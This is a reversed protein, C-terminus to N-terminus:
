QLTIVASSHARLVQQLMSRIGVTIRKGAAGTIGSGAAGTIGSGAAIIAMITIGATAATTTTVTDTAM